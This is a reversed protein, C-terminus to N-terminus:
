MCLPSRIKLKRQCCKGKEKKQCSGRKYFIREKKSITINNGERLINM